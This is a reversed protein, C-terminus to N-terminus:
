IIEFGFLQAKTMKFELRVAKGNLKGISKAWVVPHAISDGTIQVWDYGAIPKSDAGVMRVQCSKYINANVTLSEGHIKVPKTLLRGEVLDADRSVYRDKDMSAFGIHRKDFRGVKHGQEYGGYYIYTKDGVVIQEDGWTMAHDFSGPLPNNPMFPQHDRQWTKGDRTWALVTYGLGAAKRKMDGMERANLGPTANLDDRLVKVLGIMLDGRTVAGSMSYFQTEGRERPVGLKPEIIIEIDEWNELDKSTTQHGMRRNDSNPLPYTKDEYGDLRHSIIALYQERISDWHLSSIDHNHEFVPNGEGETWTIGDASYSLYLGPRLYAAFVYRKDPNGWDSGRDLVTCGFAIQHPDALVRHPRNWNIGDQSEVYAIHSWHPNITDTSTNYWMRFLGSQEDHIVSIYPQFVQDKDWGAYLIPDSLRDPNNVTRNLMTQEAILYDDLFLYPGPNLDLTGISSQTCEYSLLAILIVSSTFLIRLM